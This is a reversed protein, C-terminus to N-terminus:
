QFGSSTVFQFFDGFLLLFPFFNRKNHNITELKGGEVRRKPMSPFIGKPADSNEQEGCQQKISSPMTGKIHRGKEKGVFFYALEKSTENLM